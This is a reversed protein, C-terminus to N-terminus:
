PSRWGSGAPPITPPLIGLVRVDTLKKDPILAQFGHIGDSFWVRLYLDEDTNFISEPVPAMGAIDTDGVVINFHGSRVPAGVSGAPEDGVTSTGDNSWLTAGHAENLIALKFQGDGEFAAGQVQIAGQYNFEVSAQAPTASGLALGAM